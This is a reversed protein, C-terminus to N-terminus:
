EEIHQCSEKFDREGSEISGIYILNRELQEQSSNRREPPVFALFGKTCKYCKLGGPPGVPPETTPMIGRQSMIYDFASGPYIKDFRGMSMGESAWRITMDSVAVEFENTEKENCKEKNCM